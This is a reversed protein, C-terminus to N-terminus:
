QLVETSSPHIIGELKYSTLVGAKTPKFNAVHEGNAWHIFAKLLTSFIQDRSLRDKRQEARNAKILLKAAPVIVGDERRDVGKQLAFIFERIMELPAGGVQMLHVQNAAQLASMTASAVNDPQMSARGLELAETLAQDHNLVYQEVEIMTPVEDNGELRRVYHMVARSVWEKEKSDRIGALKLAEWAKRRDSQDIADIVEPNQRRVALVEITCGSMVVAACRHQGNILDNTGVAFAIGQHTLRWEGRSMARAWKQAKSLTFDRNKGNHETYILAAIVPTLTISAADPQGSVIGVVQNRDQPTASAVLRRLQEDFRAQEPDVRVPKSTPVTTESSGTPESALRNTTPQEM